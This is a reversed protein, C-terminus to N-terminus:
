LEIRRKPPIYKTADFKGSPADDDIIALEDDEIEQDPGAAVRQLIVENAQALNQEFGATLGVFELHIRDKDAPGFSPLASAIEISRLLLGGTRKQMSHPLAFSIRNSIVSFAARAEAHAQATELVRQAAKTRQATLHEFKKILGDRSVEHFAVKAEYVKTKAFATARKARVLDSTIKEVEALAEAYIKEGEAGEALLSALDASNEASALEDELRSVKAVIGAHVARAADIAQLAKAIAPDANPVEVLDADPELEITTINM